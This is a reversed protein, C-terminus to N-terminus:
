APDSWLVQMGDNTIPDAPEAHRFWGADSGCTLIDCCRAMDGDVCWVVDVWGAVRRLDGPMANHVPCWFCRLMSVTREVGFSSHM